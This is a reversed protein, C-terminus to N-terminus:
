YFSISEKVFFESFSFSFPPDNRGNTTYALSVNRSGQEHFDHSCDFPVQLLVGSSLDGVAEDTM